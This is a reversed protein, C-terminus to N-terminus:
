ITKIFDILKSVLEPEAPHLEAASDAGPLSGPKAKGPQPAPPRQQRVLRLGGVQSDVQADYSRKKKKPEPM